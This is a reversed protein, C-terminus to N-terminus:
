DLMDNLAATEKNTKQRSSIDMSALSINLDGVIFTNSGIEGKIDMLIQKIYKDAEINSAYM